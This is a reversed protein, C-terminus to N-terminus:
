RASGRWARGRGRRRGCRAARGRRGRCGGPVRARSGARSARHRRGRSCRGSSRRPWSRAAASCARAQTALEDPARLLPTTVEGDVPHVELEVVLRLARHQALVRELGVVLPHLAEDVAHSRGTVRARATTATTDRRHAHPTSSLTDPCQRGISCTFGHRTYTGSGEATDEGEAHEPQGGAAGAGAVRLLAALGEARHGDLAVLARLRLHREVATEVARLVLGLDQDLAVALLDGLAVGHLGVPPDAVAEGLLLRLAGPGLVTGRLRHLHRFVDKREQALRDDAVLDAVADHQEGAGLLRETLAPAGVDADAVLVGDQRDDVDEAPGLRHRREVARLALVLLGRAPRRLQDLLVTDDGAEVEAGGVLGAALQDGGGEHLAVAGLHLGALGEDDVVEALDVVGVLREVLGVAALRGLERDTDALDDRAPVLAEHTAGDTRAHDQLDRRCVAVALLAVLLGPDLAGVGQEEDDVDEASGSGVSQRLPSPVPITCGRASRSIFRWMRSSPALRKM